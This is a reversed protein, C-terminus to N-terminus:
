KAVEYLKIMEHNKFVDIYMPIWHADYFSYGCGRFGLMWDFESFPEIVVFGIAQLLEINSKVIDDGWNDFEFLANWIPYNEDQNLCEECDDNLESKHITCDKHVIHECLHGYDMSAIKEVVQLHQKNFHMNILQSALNSMESINQHNYKIYTTKM